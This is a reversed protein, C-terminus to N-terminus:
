DVVLCRYIQLIKYNTIENLYYEIHTGRLEIKSCNNIYMNIIKRDYTYLLNDYLKISNVHKSFIIEDILSTCLDTCSIGYYNKNKDELLINFYENNNLYRDIDLRLEYEDETSLLENIRKIHNKRYM